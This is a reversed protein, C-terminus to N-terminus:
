VVKKIIYSIYLNQFNEYVIKKQKYLDIYFDKINKNLNHRTNFFKIEDIISNLVHFTINRKEFMYLGVEKINEEFILDDKMAIFPDTM